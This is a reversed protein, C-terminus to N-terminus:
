GREKVLFLPRAQRGEMALRITKQLSEFDAVLSHPKKEPDDQWMPAFYVQKRGLLVALNRLNASMADNSALALVLPRDTRMHAKVAMCVPTDTIGNAIKALTNGTCPCVIMLDLPQAPGLPEAREITHIIQTGTLLRIKRRLDEATGFRTDTTYSVDSLIPVLEAGCVTALKEMERYLVVRM